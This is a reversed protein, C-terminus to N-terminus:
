RWAPSYPSILYLEEDNEVETDLGPRAKGGTDKSYSTPHSESGTQVCLSSSFDEAKALSRAGTARDDM